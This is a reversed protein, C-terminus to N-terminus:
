KKISINLINNFAVGCVLFQLAFVIGSQFIIVSAQILDYSIYYFKHLLLVAIGVLLVFTSFFCGKKVIKLLKSDINSIALIIEKFINKRKM